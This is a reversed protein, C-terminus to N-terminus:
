HRAYADAEGNLYIDIDQLKYYPHLRRPDNNNRIIRNIEQKHLDRRCGVVIFGCIIGAIAGGIIAIIIITM